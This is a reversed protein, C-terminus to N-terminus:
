TSKLGAEIAMWLTFFPIEPEREEGPPPTAAEIKEESRQNVVNLKLLMGPPPIGPLPEDGFKEKMRKAAASDDTMSSTM